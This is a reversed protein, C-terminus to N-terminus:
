DGLALAEFKLHIRLSDVSELVNAPNFFLERLIADGM